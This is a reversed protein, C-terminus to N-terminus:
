QQSSYTKLSGEVNVLGTEWGPLATITDIVKDTAYFDDYVVDAEIGHGLTVCEIGNVLLLVQRRDLVLNYVSDTTTMYCVDNGRVLDKPLCWKENIRIPHNKTIKLGTSKFEVLPSNIKRQIIVVCDVTATSEMGALDIVKVIDGQKINSLPTSVWERHKTQYLMVTTTKDFCGGGSGGYYTENDVPPVYAQVVPPQYAQPQYAPIHQQQQQQQQQRQQQQQAQYEVRRKMTLTKFINGGAEELNKFLSGGYLQLGPDMFNTRIQLQHSRTIARLYHKGWRKFREVTSLAKSMRGAIDTHFCTLRADNQGSNNCAAEYAAVKGVLAKMERIGEPGNGNECKDIIEYV